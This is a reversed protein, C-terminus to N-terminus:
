VWQGSGWGGSIIVNFQYDSIPDIGRIKGTIERNAFIKLKRILTILTM